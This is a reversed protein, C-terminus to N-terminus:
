RTQVLELRVNLGALGIVSTMVVTDRVGLHQSYSAVYRADSGVRGRGVRGVESEARVGEVM